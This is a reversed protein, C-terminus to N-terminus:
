AAPPSVFLRRVSARRLYVVCLAFYLIEIGARGISVLRQLRAAAWASTVLVDPLGPEKSLALLDNTRVLSFACDLATYAISGLAAMTWASLGWQDNRLARGCGAFLLLSLIFNMAALPLAANRRSYVADAEKEVLRTLQERPALKDASPVLRDIEDRVDNIFADRSRLFSQVTAISYVSGFGGLLLGIVALAVLLPPKKVV